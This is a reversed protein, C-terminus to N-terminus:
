MIMVVSGTFQLDVIPLTMIDYFTCINVQDCACATVSLCTNRTVHQHESALGSWLLTSRLINLRGLPLSTFLHASAVGDFATDRANNVRDAM